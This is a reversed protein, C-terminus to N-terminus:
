RCIELTPAVVVLEPAELRSVPNRYAFVELDLSKWEVVPDWSDSEM